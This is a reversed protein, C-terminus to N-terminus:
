KTGLYDRVADRWPRPQFGTAVIKDLNFTSEAPRQALPGTLAEYEATTVSTVAAGSVGCHEFVARALDDRGVVDGSNSLNYVGYDAGSRLLHVIGAALDAAHTPRGRQDSIVNPRIGRQALLRMTEVFNGGQGFVWSTRVVYHKPTVAAAIDGAAKSAGYVSLPSPAEAEEHVLTTGDFIFDTSVHVLTLNNETAIQALRAPAVANVEWARARDDEAADVNNYAACNIIAEYQRWPRQPPNVVDFDAHSCLEADPLLEALARGLQGHAGTILIRRPPMPTADALQPHCRDKESIETPPLPWDIMGLNVATYTADPSWHDNVLYTYSTNDVLAQFGNAVGRPVFVATYPTITCTVVEGFTDSGERLDCWAGFVEGHAVSVFKDWPEAHLGRTVGREANFSINNQVPQFDPLGAAVMKERQWNEKFWGRNDGHVDLDVIVVGAIATPRVQM